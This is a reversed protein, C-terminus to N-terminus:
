ERKRRSRGYNGWVEEATPITKKPRTSGSLEKAVFLPTFEDHYRELADIGKDTINVVSTWKGDIFENLYLPRIVMRLALFLRRRDNPSSPVTNPGLSANATERILRNIHLQGNERLVLLAAHSIRAQLEPTVNFDDM